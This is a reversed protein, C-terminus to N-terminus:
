ASEHTNGKTACALRQPHSYVLFQHNRVFGALTLGHREAVSIALSTAASVAVLMPFGAAVSKQVMELSARSSVVCFGGGKPANGGALAGILKDLANHRGIDECVLQLKGGADAWAAAHTAGTKSHLQQHEGLMDIARTVAPAEFVCDDPGVPNLTRWLQSLNEVGCLGCGTRGAMQRRRLKLAHLREGAIELAMVIGEPEDRREIGRCEGPHRLIGESLAFGLALEQLRTPTAMLVAHSIGNFELAVAMETAVTEAEPGAPTGGSADVRWASVQQMGETEPTCSPDTPHDVVPM